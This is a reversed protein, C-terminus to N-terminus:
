SPVVSLLTALARFAARAQARSRKNGRTDSPKPEGNPHRKKPLLTITRSEANGVYAVFDVAVAYHNWLKKDDSVSFRTLAYDARTSGSDRFLWLLPYSNGTPRQGAARTRM